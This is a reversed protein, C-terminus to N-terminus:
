SSFIFERRRLAAVILDIAEAHWRQVARYDANLVVGLRRWPFLHRETVPHVLCRAGVIRRLVYRDDPIYRVWQFACEMRDIRDASPMPPRISAVATPWGYIDWWDHVVDPMGSRVGTTYGRDPLALLTAGAEELSAVIFRADDDGSATSVTSVVQSM